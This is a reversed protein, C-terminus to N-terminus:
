VIGCYSGTRHFHGFLHGQPAVSTLPLLQHSVLTRSIWTRPSRAGSSLGQEATGCTPGWPVHESPQLLSRKVPLATTEAPPSPSSLGRPKRVQGAHITTAWGDAGRTLVFVLSSAKVALKESDEPYYHSLVRYYGLESDRSLFCSLVKVLGPARTRSPKSASCQVSGFQCM